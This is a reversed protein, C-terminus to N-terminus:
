VHSPSFVQSSNWRVELQGVAETIVVPFSDAAGLPAVCDAGLARFRWRYLGGQSSVIRLGEFTATGDPGIVAVNGSLVPPSGSSLTSNIDFPLPLTPIASADVQLVDVTVAIRLSSTGRLPPAIPLDGAAAFTPVIAAVLPARSPEITGGVSMFLPPPSLVTCSIQNTVCVVIGSRNSIEFRTGEAYFFTVDYCGTPANCIFLNNFQAVGGADSPESVNGRLGCVM